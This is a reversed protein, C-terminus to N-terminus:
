LHQRIDLTDNLNAKRITFTQMRERKRALLWEPASHRSHNLTVDLFGTKRAGAMTAPRLRDRPAHTSRTAHYM